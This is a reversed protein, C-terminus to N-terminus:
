RIEALLREIMREAQGGYGGGFLNYHNLVHYLNYLTKRTAYGPDLPWAHRYAAYFAAPFGGFLETMALDAERDGYYVAPDFIVPNGDADAGWNGGWLDGHLLSPRPRYDAFLSPLAELLREGGSQVGGRLGNGAALRLQFGLRRERWFDLWDDLWANPQPTAGITNDIKWGFQAATAHHLAALQEGLRQATQSKGGGLELYELVLYAHGASAGFCVPQPVRIAGAQALEVLGLAEAEFMRAQDASNTKVFFRRSGDEVVYAANICGGGAGRPAKPRFPSGTATAIHQSVAPWLSM